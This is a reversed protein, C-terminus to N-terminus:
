WINLIPWINGLGELWEIGLMIDKGELAFRYLDHRFEVGQLVVKVNRCIGSTKIKRSNGVKELYPVTPEVEM